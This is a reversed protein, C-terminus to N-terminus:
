TCGGAIVGRTTNSAGRTNRRALQLDGFDSANAASDITVYDIVNSNSGTTGGAFCGRTDSNFGAFYGRAVTLDGFDSSNSTSDITIYDIVNTYGSGGAFLGRTGDSCGAMGATATSLDGFDSSNGTSSFTIYQIVDTNSGTNGGAIVGRTVNSAGRSSTHNIAALTDGFDSADGTSDISVYDITNKLTSGGNSAGGFFCGRNGYWDSSGGSAFKMFPNLLNLSM